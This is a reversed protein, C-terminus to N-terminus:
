GLFIGSLVANPGAVRTVDITVTGGAAVDIPYTIWAGNVFEGSLLASQGNVTITERRGGADWDVAYLELNGNYGAPFSLRLRIENADYYTAAERSGKSPSELARVDSTSGAWVYRSGQEVALSDSGLSELDSSGNWAALAYGGSGFTGVWDGQPATAITPGAPPGADGLFIGSLVANPGATRDVTVKVTGGAAVEVPFSVWAGDNFPASLAASQGDVTIIERRATSDWDLAYLHLNGKYAASFTLTLKIQNPDYYAAANRTAGTPDSLARADATEPAWEYRAGQVLNLSAGPLDSLDESGGNWGALDYGASGVVNAWSGQPATSVTPAPPAGSDGLFIGSLVANAGATRDVTITATGGAPVSVPLTVWAGENFASSLVASQGNITILERRATSDWDVAYFHVNGTYGAPFSLKLEIQNPDYYAGANRTVAGPDQLARPDSTGAAWQYRSGQVLSLSGNPLYSVDGTAGDWGALDYGGAGVTGAWSGQPASSVTGATGGAEGLFIGSLVANAGATRQVAITVTGGAAVSIPFTVWAGKNFESLEAAQGNVTLTERRATSDWDVAYLHLNGTYATPFSLTLKIENPDYYAAASRALGDPSQLARVDSTNAAWQYRSGQQLSLTAGQLDSVDNVGDWDALDYGAGGFAGVWTGEPATSITPPTVAPAADGLMIASLVASTGAARKVNIPLTTGAAVNIPFEVWSGQHFGHNAKEDEAATQGPAGALTASQTGATITERRAESDWDVAYLHLNGKYANTFHLQVQVETPDSYAAATRSGPSSPSELARTDTTSAAWTLRSGKVLTATVGAPMKVLDSSGSFAALDYGEAGKKGIWNGQPWCPANWADLEVNKEVAMFGEKNGEECLQSQTLKKKYEVSWVAKHAETFPKVLACEKRGACEETLDWDFYPELEKTQTVDNKLAISLGLSHAESALWENYTLQEEATLPFGANNNDFGEVNDAEVGDFGKAKCLELRKTMIPELISLQRIDLWRENPFGAYTNGLVSAPFEGADPRWEEWSGADMYCVVHRGLAHLATVVSAENEFLDIDYIEADVTPEIPEALNWQWTANAPPVWYASARGPAALALMLACAALAVLWVARRRWAAASEAAAM